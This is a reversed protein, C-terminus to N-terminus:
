KGSAGFVRPYRYYVEMCLTMLATSYVRGGDEGWPDVPDWSGSFNGDTRQTNIVAAELKSNWANWEAGGVQFMALTAYYWYYMDVKGGKPDWVPLRRGILEAGAKIVPSTTPDEGAFVRNIIGVGTLSESEDAPWRDVRGEARVPREGRKMYGTRGTEEDTMEKTFDHAWAISNDNIDLGAMKASKLAMVMWGTVSIDNDGPRAGYRWAKYPNQCHMVYNIGNQASAKWIGSRTMGYAEAMALAAIAHSYTHHPDGRPGFCGDSDQMSKLWKLGERVTTQYNGEKTTHGAGLFCLLALGSVGVDYTAMGKGDCLPGKNPDGNAMFNDCDWRGDPSQHKSLWELGQDVAKRTRGGGGGAKLNRSGGRRGGFAGGAGGGLGMADNTQTGDFPKDSLADEEGKSEEFEEENDTENHDAVETDKVVPEETVEEDPKVEETEEEVEELPLEEQLTEPAQIELPKVGVSQTGGASIFHLIIAILIHIALSILLWPANKLQEVMLDNFSPNDHGYGGYEYHQAM